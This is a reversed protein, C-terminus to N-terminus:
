FRNIAPRAFPKQGGPRGRGLDNDFVARGVAGGGKKQRGPGPAGVPPARRAVKARGAPGTAVSTRSVMPLRWCSTCRSGPSVCSMANAIGGPNGYSFSTWASTQSAETDLLPPKVGIKKSGFEDSLRYRPTRTRGTSSALGRHSDSDDRRTGGHDFPAM